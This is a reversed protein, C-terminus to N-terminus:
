TTQQQNEGQEGTKRGGCFGLNGFEMDVLIIPSAHYGVLASTAQDRFLKNYYMKSTKSCTAQCHPTAKTIAQVFLKQRKPPKLVM